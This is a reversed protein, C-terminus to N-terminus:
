NHCYGPLCTIVCLTQQIILLRGGSAFTEYGLKANRSYLRAQLITRVIFKQRFFERLLIFLVTRLAKALYLERLTESRGGFEGKFPVQRPRRLTVCKM